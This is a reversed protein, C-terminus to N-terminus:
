GIDFRRGGQRSGNRDGNDGTTTYVANLINFSQTVARRSDRAHHDAAREIVSTDIRSLRKHCCATLLLFTLHEISKSSPTSGACSRTSSNSIRTTSKSSEVSAKIRLRLM